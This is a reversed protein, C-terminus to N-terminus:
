HDYIKVWIHRIKILTYTDYKMLQQESNNAM